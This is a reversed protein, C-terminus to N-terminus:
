IYFFEVIIKDPSPINWLIVKMKVAQVTQFFVFLSNYESWIRRKNRYEEIVDTKDNLKWFGGHIFDQETNEIRYYLNVKQIM